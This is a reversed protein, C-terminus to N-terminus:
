AKGLFLLKSICDIVSHCHTHNFKCWWYWLDILLMCRMELSPSSYPQVQLRLRLTWDAVHIESQENDEMNMKTIKPEKNSEYFSLILWDLIINWIVCCDLGIKPSLRLWSILFFISIQSQAWCILDLGVFLILGLLSSWAWCILDLGVSLILVLLSFFIKIKFGAM